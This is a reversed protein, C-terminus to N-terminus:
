FMERLPMDIQRALMCDIIGSKKWPNIKQRVNVIRYGKDVSYGYVTLAATIAALVEPKVGDRRVSSM